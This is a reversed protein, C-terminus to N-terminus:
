SHLWRQILPRAARLARARHSLQNKQTDTLEAMTRGLEPILFIPDYGFGNSGREEPIIEGECSGEAFQLAGDPFAVAITCRFRASWPRTKGSLQVLLHARRDADSANPLPSFRASIVGPLGDLADVELGSDDALVTMGSAKSFALAKLAANEAYSMGTEEVALRIGVDNPSILECPLDDLIARIESLKGRNSTAILLGPMAVGKVVYKVHIRVVNM